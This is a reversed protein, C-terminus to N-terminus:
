FRPTKPQRVALEVHGDGRLQMLVREGLIMTQPDRGVNGDAQRRRIEEGSAIWREFRDCGQDRVLTRVLVKGLLISACTNVAISATAPWTARAQPNCPVCPSRPPSRKRSRSRRGSSH